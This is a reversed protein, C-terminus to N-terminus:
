AIKHTQCYEYDIKWKDWLEPRKQLYDYVESEDVLIDTGKKTTKIIRQRILFWIRIEVANTSVSFCNELKKVPGATYCVKM